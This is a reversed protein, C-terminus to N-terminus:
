LNNGKDNESLYMNLDDEWTSDGTIMKKYIDTDFVFTKGLKEQIRTTNDYERDLVRLANFNGKLLPQLKTNIELVYQKIYQPIKVSSQNHYLASIDYGSIRLVERLSYSSKGGDNILCEISSYTKDEYFIIKCDPFVVDYFPPHAVIRYPQTWIYKKLESSLIDQIM